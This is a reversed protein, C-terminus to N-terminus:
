GDIIRASSCWIRASAPFRAMITGDRVDWVLVNNEFDTSVMRTGDPSLALWNLMSSHGSQLVMKPPVTAVAAPVTPPTATAVPAAPSKDSATTAEALLLPPTPAQLRPISVGATTAHAELGPTRQAVHWPSSAGHWKMPAPLRHTFQFGVLAGTIMLGAAIKWGAAHWPALSPAQTIPHPITMEMPKVEQLVRHVFDDGPLALILAGVARQLTRRTEEEDAQLLLTRLRERARKCRVYATPVSCGLIDAIEGYSLENLYRAVLM